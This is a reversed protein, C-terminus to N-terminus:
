QTAGASGGQVGALAPETWLDIPRPDALQRRKWCQHPHQCRGGRARRVESGALPRDISEQIKHELLKMTHHDAGSEKMSRCLKRCDREFTRRGARAHVGECDIVWLKWRDGPLLTPFLHRSSAGRWGLGASRIRGLTEVIADLLSLRQRGSLREWGGLRIIGDISEAPPVARVVVASRFLLLGESFLALREPVNLGAAELRALGHWEREPMTQFPQGTKLDALRPLLRRRGWNMKVFVRVPEGSRDALTTEWVTRGRHREPASGGAAFVSDLDGLGGRVLLERAAPSAFRSRGALYSAAHTFLM